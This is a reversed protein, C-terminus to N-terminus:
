AGAGAVIFRQVSRDDSGCPQLAAASEGTSARRIIAARSTSSASKAPHLAKSGCGLQDPPKAVQQRDTGHSAQCSRDKRLLGETPGCLQRSGPELTAAAALNAITCYAYETTADTEPEGSVKALSKVFAKWSRDM